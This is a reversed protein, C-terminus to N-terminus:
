LLDSARALNYLNVIFGASFIVRGVVDGMPSKTAGRRFRGILNAGGFIGLAGVPVLWANNPVSVYITVILVVLAVFYLREPQETRIKVDEGHIEAKLYRSFVVLRWAFAGFILSAMVVLLVPHAIKSFACLIPLWVVLVVGIRLYWRELYRTLNENSPAWWSMYLNPFLETLPSFLSLLLIVLNGNAAVDVLLRSDM